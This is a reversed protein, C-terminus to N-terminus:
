KIMKIVYPLFLILGIFFAGFCVLLVAAAALDKIRAIRPDHNSQFKDCLEEFATNLAETTLVFAITILLLTLELRSVRFFFALFIVIVMAIVEIKFNREERWLIKLGMLAYKFSKLSKKLM